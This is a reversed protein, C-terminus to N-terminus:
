SKRKARFGRRWPHDAAPRHPDKKTDEAVGEPPFPEASTRGSRGGTPQVGPPEAENASTSGEEQGGPTPGGLSLSRPTQPASGGLVAAGATIEHFKLYHERFRIAMSGDLRVEIAVKGGRESPHIPKDLQYQRNEFRVTYDNAVTRQQQLSL